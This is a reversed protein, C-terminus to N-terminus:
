VGAAMVQMGDPSCDDPQTVLGRNLNGERRVM